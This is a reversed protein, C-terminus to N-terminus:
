GQSLFREENRVFWQYTSKIGEELSITARWGLAAIRAIDLLKRPTGDPKTSDFTLRGEFGVVHAILEALEGITVDCGTGINVLDSGEYSNM